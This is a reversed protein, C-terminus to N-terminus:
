AGPSPRVIVVPCPASHACYRGTSGLLLGTFGGRGRSGVVLLEAGDAAEVLVSGASGEVVETSVTLGATEAAVAELAQEVVARADDGLEDMLEHRVAAAEGPMSGIAAGYPYQWAHVVVLDVDRTRAEAVAWRLAALSHESGDVGVVISM